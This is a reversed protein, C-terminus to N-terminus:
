WILQMARLLYADEVAEGPGEGLIGDWSEIDDILFGCALMGKLLGKGTLDDARVPPLHGHGQGPLLVAALVQERQLDALHELQRM